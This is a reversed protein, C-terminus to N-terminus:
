CWVPRRPLNYSEVEFTEPSEKLDEPPLWADTLNCHRGATQYRTERYTNLDKSTERVHSVVKTEINKM